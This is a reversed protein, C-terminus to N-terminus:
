QQGYIIPTNAKPPLKSVTKQSQNFQVPAGQITLQEGQPSYAALKFGNIYNSPLIMQEERGSRPRLYLALGSGSAGNLRDRPVFVRVTEQRLCRYRVSVDRYGGLNYPSHAYYNLERDFKARADSRRTEPRKSVSPKSVSRPTPRTSKPTSTSRVPKSVPKSKSVSSVPRRRSVTPKSSMRPRPRVRPGTPETGPADLHPGNGDDQPRRRPRTRPRTPAPTSDDTTPTDTGDDSDDGDDDIPQAGGHGHGGSRGDYYDDYPGYPGYGVGSGRYYGGYGYYGHNTPIYSERIDQRCDLVSTGFDALLAAEGGPWSVSNYMRGEDPNPTATSYNILVDIYAGDKHVIGNTDTFPGATRLQASGTVGRRNGSFMKVRPALIESIGSHTDTRRVSNSAIDIPTRSALSTACGSLLLMLTVPLFITTKSSIHTMTMSYLIM